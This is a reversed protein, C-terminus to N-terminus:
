PKNQSKNQFAWMNFLSLAGVMFEETGNRTKIAISKNNLKTENIKKIWKCIITNMVKFRIVSM